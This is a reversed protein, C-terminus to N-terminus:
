AIVQLLTLTDQRETTLQLQDPRLIASVELRVGFRGPLYLGPEITFGSWPLLPRSDPFEVDDLNTGVGQVHDTGLSHGTRHILLDGLGVAFISERAARDVERGPLRRGSRVADAIVEAAVDRARRVADFVRVVEEPPNTGTYAMWTSDAYPAEEVDQLKAWLDILLVSDSTIEAGAAEGTSYHPDAAHANVAVDPLGHSAFGNAEFIGAIFRSLQGETLAEGARLMEQCRQLAVARAEDVARAAREHWARQREDWVELGAVLTASSVVEVGLSRVMEILGADVRSVTPLEGNPVYEMAVPEGQPLLGRLTASMEEFGGYLSVECAMGSFTHGDTRSALVVPEGRGRAPLWLFCRRTLLGSELGLLKGLIPNNRRFDAVLWGALGEDEVLQAWRELHNTMVQVM